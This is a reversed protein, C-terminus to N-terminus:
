ASLFKCYPSHPWYIAHAYGDSIFTMCYCELLDTIGLLASNAFYHVILVRLTNTTYLCRTRWNHSILNPNSSLHTILSHVPSSPHCHWLSLLGDILTFSYLSLSSLHLSGHYHHDRHQRCTLTWWIYDMTLPGQIIDINTQWHYEMARKQNLYNNVVTCLIYHFPNLCNMKTNTTSININLRLPKILINFAVGSKNRGQLGLAKHYLRYGSLSVIPWATRVCGSGKLM